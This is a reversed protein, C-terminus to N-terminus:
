PTDEVFLQSTREDAIVNGRSSLLKSTEDKLMAVLNETKQYSILFGRSVLPELEDTIAGVSPQTRQAEAEEATSVLIVKGSHRAVLGKSRMVIDLAQDWPVDRLFVSVNGTVGDSLVLNMDTFDAFIQMVKKIDVEKLNLSTPKGFYQPTGNFEKLQEPVGYNTRAGGAALPQEVTSEPKLVVQFLKEQQRLEYTANELNLKLNASQTAQSLSVNSYHKGDKTTVSEGLNESFVADQILVRLQNGIVTSKAQVNDSDFQLNIVEFGNEDVGTTMSKLIPNPKSSVTEKVRDLMDVLPSSPKVAVTLNASDAKFPMPGLVKITLRNDQATQEVSYQDNLLLVLRTKGDSKASEIGRVRKTQALLSGVDLGSLDAQIDLVQRAPQQLSFHELQGSIVQDFTLEIVTSDNLDVVSQSIVQPVPISVPEAVSEPVTVKPPSLRLFLRKGSQSLRHTAENLDIELEVLGGNLDVNLQEFLEGRERLSWNAEGINSLQIVLRRGTLTATKVEPVRDFEFVLNEDKASTLLRIDKLRGLDAHPIATEPTPPQENSWAPSGMALTISTCLITKALLGSRAIILKDKKTM